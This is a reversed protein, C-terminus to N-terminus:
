ALRRQALHLLPNALALRQNIRNADVAGRLRHRPRSQPSVLLLATRNRERRRERAAAAASPRRWRRRGTRRRLTMAPAAAGVRQPRRGQAVHGVVAAAAGLDNAKRRIELLGRRANGVLQALLVVETVLRGRLLVPLPM